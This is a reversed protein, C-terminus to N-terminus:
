RPDSNRTPAPMPGGKDKGRAEAEAEKRVPECQLEDFWEPNYPKGEKDLKMPQLGLRRCQYLWDTIGVVKGEFGTITDKAVDGLKIEGVPEFKMKTEKEGITTRAQEDMRDKLQKVGTLVMAFVLVMFAMFM